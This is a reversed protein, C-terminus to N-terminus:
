SGSEKAVRRSANRPVPGPTTAKGTSWFSESGAEVFEEVFLDPTELLLRTLLRLSQVIPAGISINPAFHADLVDIHTRDAGAWEAETVQQGLCAFDAALISAALKVTNNGM